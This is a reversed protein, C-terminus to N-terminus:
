KTPVRQEWFTRLAVLPIAEQAEAKRGTNWTIVLERRARTIGVYLLRLRETAYDLRAAESAEGESYSTENLASELQALAEAELNLNDRVFWKESIYRDFPQASPFDYNNVSLLYVRDWELGKASHMTAVTVKGRHRDPDFGTDDDSLGLFRRENRAVRALEDTYDPLYWDPHTAGARRLYLAISYATALDAANTFLDAGVTLILQDVPLMAAEQWRRILDRFASLHEHLDPDDALPVVSELWDDSQPWIFDEVQRIKGLMGTINQIHAMADPDDRSDRMWVEYTRALLRATVPEALYHLVNSIAGAVERTSSTSRLMEVYEVRAAKLAKVVEFGRQNRPVLVAATRGPNQKIWRAISAVVVEVERGPSYNDAIIHVNAPDDPPNPQPDDPPTPEIYPPTLPQRSRISDEPHRELTWEILYNALDIISRTSRGSNPLERRQVGSEDLFERLHHPNATTFTEYIAQNPDGVRVWNGNDGVLLRLIDQQLLSSDQAEDELIYPWKHQL